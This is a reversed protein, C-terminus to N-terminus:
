YHLSSYEGTGPHAVHGLNEYDIDKNQRGYPPPKKPPVNPPGPLDLHGTLELRSYEEGRGTPQPHVAELVSPLLLFETALNGFDVALTPHISKFFCYYTRISFLWHHAGTRFRIHMLVRLMTVCRYDGSLEKPEAELVSYNEADPDPASSEVNVYGHSATGRPKSIPAPPPPVAGAPRPIYDEYVCSETVTDDYDQDLNVYDRHDAPQSPVIHQDSSGEDLNQYDPAVSLQYRNPGDQLAETSKVQRVLQHKSSGGDSSSCSLRKYHTPLPPRSNQSSLNQAHDTPTPPLPRNVATNGPVPPLPRSSQRFVPPEAPSNIRRFSVWIAFFFVVFLFIIKAATPNSGVGDFHSTGLVLAKSWEAV